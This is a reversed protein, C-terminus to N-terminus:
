KCLCLNGRFSLAAPKSWQASVCIACFTVCWTSSIYCCLQLEDCREDPGCPVLIWRQPLKWCGCWIKQGIRENWNLTIQHKVTIWTWVPPQILQIQYWCDAKLYHAAIDSVALESCQSTVVAVKPPPSPALVFLWGWCLLMQDVQEAISLSFIPLYSKVSKAKAGNQPPLTFPALLPIGTGPLASQPFSNILLYLVIM